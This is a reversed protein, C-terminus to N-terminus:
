WPLEKGKFDFFHGTKAPSLKEIVQLLGAASDEPMTPAQQGGMRTRVWGPHLVVATIKPYDVALTKTFMNLAAKSMRYPYYGGGADAISGMHSTINAIVPADSNQLFPLLSQTVRIPGVTNVEFVQFVDKIDLKEFGSEGRGEFTGANNILWDIKKFSANTLEALDKDSTVDLQVLTLKDGFDAALSKLESSGRPDRGSAIVHHGKKLLQKTMELGIGKTSGTIFITKM